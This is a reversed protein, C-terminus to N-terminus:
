CVKVLHRALRSPACGCSARAAPMYTGVWTHELGWRAASASMLVHPLSQPMGKPKVAALRGSSKSIKCTARLHGHRLVVAHLVVRLILYTSRVRLAM